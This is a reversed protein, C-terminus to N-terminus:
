EKATENTRWAGLSTSSGAGPPKAGPKFATNIYRNMMGNASVYSVADYYWSSEKVDRFPNIWKSTDATGVVYLSFHNVKFTALKTAPDYSCPVESMTGDEALYWVTVDEAKEGTKLEYPLSVTATGNGFSTIHKGGATITLSVVLRDPHENKHDASVDKIEVKVSDKTQGVINKM